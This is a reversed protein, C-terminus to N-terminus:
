YLRGLMALKESRPQKKIRAELRCASSRDMCPVCGRLIAPRRERTYKAGGTRLGNHEQMRRALDMTVGCYLTGDGCELLYVHWFGNKKMLRFRGSAMSHHFLFHDLQM